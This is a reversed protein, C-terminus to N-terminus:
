LSDLENEVKWRLNLALHCMNWLTICFISNQQGIDQFQQDSDNTEMQWIGFNLLKLVFARISLATETLLAVTQKWRQNFYSIQKLLYRQLPLVFFIVWMVCVVKHFPNVLPLCLVQGFNVAFFLFILDHIMKRCVRSAYVYVKFARKSHQKRSHLLVFGCSFFMACRKNM